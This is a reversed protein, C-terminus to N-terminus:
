KLSHEKNLPDYEVCGYAWCLSHEDHIGSHENWMQKPSAQEKTPNVKNNILEVLRQYHLNDTPLDKRGGYISTDLVDRLSLCPKNMLIYEEAKEKHWFTNREVKNYTMLKNGRCTSINYKRDIVDYLENDYIEVGDETTFLLPKVEEKPPLKKHLDVANLFDAWKCHEPRESDNFKLRGDQIEFGLLTTEYSKHIGWGIKDGVSFVVNDSKRLVQFIECGSGEMGKSCDHVFGNNNGNLWVGKINRYVCNSEKGKIAVIEWGKDQITDSSKNLDPMKMLHKVFEDDKDQRTLTPIDPVENNLVQEIAQKVAEYKEEPIKYDDSVVFQYWGDTILPMVLVTKRKGVEAEKLKSQKFHEIRSEGLPLDSYKGISMHMAYEKVLDDTWQFVTKSDTTNM